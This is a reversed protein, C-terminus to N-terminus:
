RSQAQSMTMAFRPDLRAARRAPVYCALLACATLALSVTLYTAPDAPSVGFLLVALMRTALRAMVLGIVVGLAIVASGERVILGMVRAPTAGLAMRVGVEGSRQAVGYSIVSYVGIIGLLLAVAAAIALLVMTFTMQAGAYAVYHSVTQAGVIPLARNSESVANRVPDVLSLPPVSAHVVYVMYHPWPSNRQAPADLPLYIQPIPEADTLSLGAMNEVVGVVFQWQAASDPATGGTYLRQGLPDRGPLYTDALAQNIIVAGTRQEFDLATFDRGRRVSTGMTRFYDPAIRRHWVMQRAEAVSASHGEVFIDAGWCPELAFCTTASAALVGPLARVRALLRDVFTSAAARSPYERESLALRFMLRQETHFGLPKQKVRDYSRMMLGAAILLVLALAIQAAAMVSRMRGRRAGTNGRSAEHLVGAVNGRSRLLPLTGLMLGSLLAVILTFVAVGGDVNVSELRPLHAPAHAVLLRVGALAGAFGLAGAVLGLLMTETLFYLFIARRGAGLARRVALDRRTAEVRVLFLNAVNACAIVLVLGVAAFLIWLAQGTSGLIDDRLSIPAASVNLRRVVLLEDRTSSVRLLANQRSALQSLSVGPRLRGIAEFNFGRDRQGEPPIAYPMWLDTGAEPFLFAAPMVGIIEVPYGDFVVTQGLVGPDAGFARQWFGHSVVAVTAPRGFQAEAENFWRGIQPASGLVRGLEPTARAYAVRELLSGARVAANGNQFLALEALEDLQDRYELFIPATIGIGGPRPVEPSTHELMVLRSSERYPFPDLVVRRVLAFIAANAGIALALTLVAAIGFVPTRLLRRMSQGTEKLIQDLLQSGPRRARAGGGRARRLADWRERLAARGLAVGERLWFRKLGADGGSVDSARQLLTKMLDAGYDRRFERPYLRVLWRILRPARM